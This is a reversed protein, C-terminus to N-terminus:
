STFREPKYTNKNGAPLKQHPKMDQFGAFGRGWARFGFGLVGFGSGRVGRVGQGESGEVGLEGM